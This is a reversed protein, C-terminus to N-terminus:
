TKKKIKWLKPTSNNTKTQPQKGNSALVKCAKLAFTKDPFNRIGYKMDDPLYKHLEKIKMEFWNNMHLGAFQLIMVSM